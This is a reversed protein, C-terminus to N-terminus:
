WGGWLLSGLIGANIFLPQSLNPLLSGLTGLLHIWFFLFVFGILAVDANKWKFKRNFGTGVVFLLIYAFVLRVCLEILNSSVFLADHLSNDYFFM